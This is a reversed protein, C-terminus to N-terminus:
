EQNCVRSLVLPGTRFGPRELESGRMQENSKPAPPFPFPFLFREKIKSLFKKKKKEESVNGKGENETGSTM